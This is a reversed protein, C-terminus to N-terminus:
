KARDTTTATAVKVGSERLEPKSTTETKEPNQSRGAGSLLSGLASCLSGSASMQCISM